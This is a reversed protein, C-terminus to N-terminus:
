PTDDGLISLKIGDIHLQTSRLLRPKYYELRGFIYKLEEKEGPNLKIGQGEPREDDNDYDWNEDEVQDWNEDEVEDEYEEKVEVKINPETSNRSEEESCMRLYDIAEERTVNEDSITSILEQMETLARGSEDAAMKNVTKSGANRANVIVVEQWSEAIMAVCDKISYHKYFEDIKGTCNVVRQMLRHRFSRKTKEAIGHDLHKILCATNAPLYKVKFNDEYDVTVNHGANNYLLLIVKGSIGNKLQYDQVSPKFHNNFWDVFIDQDIQTNQHAKLIIPLENMTDALARPKKFKYIVLPMMKHTGAANYCLGIRIRDKRLKCREDEAAFPKTPLAKWLLASEHLCYIREVNINEALIYTSFEDVFAKASGDDDEKDNHLHILRINNREKFKALWGKSVKFTSCTALFHKLGMAKELLMADSVRDGFTKREYYWSLLHQELEAYLPKKFRQRNKYRMNENSLQSIVAAKNRIRRITTHHVNYKAAVSEVTLTELDKLVSLREQVTM